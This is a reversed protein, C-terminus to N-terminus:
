DGGEELVEKFWKLNEDDDENELEKISIIKKIKSSVDKFNISIEMGCNPCNINRKLDGVDHVTYFSLDHGCSPCLFSRKRLTQFPFFVDSCKIEFKKLCSLCKIIKTNGEENEISWMKSSCNPCSIYIENEKWREKLASIDNDSGFNLEAGCRPCTKLETLSSLTYFGCKECYLYKKDEEQSYSVEFNDCLKDKCKIEERNSDKMATAVVYCDPYAPNENLLISGGSLIFNKLYTIGNKEINAGKPSLIHWSFKLKKDKALKKIKKWLDPFDRKYFVAYAYALKKKEDIEVDAFHGIIKGMVHDIRLPKGRLSWMARKFDQLSTFEKNNSNRDFYTYILKIGGLDIASGVTTLDIGKKKLREILDESTDLVKIQTRSDIEKALKSFYEYFFKEMTIKGQIERKFDM